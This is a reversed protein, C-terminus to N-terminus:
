SNMIFNVSRLSVQHTESSYKECIIPKFKIFFFNIHYEITNITLFPGKLSEPNYIQSLGPRKMSVKKMEKIKM